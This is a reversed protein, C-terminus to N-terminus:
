SAAPDQGSLWLFQNLAKNLVDLSPDPGYNVDGSWGYPDVRVRFRDLFDLSEDEAVAPRLSFQLNPETSCGSSGSFGIPQGATM